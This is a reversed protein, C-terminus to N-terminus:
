GYLRGHHLYLLLGDHVKDHPRQHPQPSNWPQDELSWGMGKGHEACFGDRSAGNYDFLMRHLHCDGLAASYYTQSSQDCDNLTITSPGSALSVTPLLGLLCVLALLASIMRRHPLKRLFNIKKM